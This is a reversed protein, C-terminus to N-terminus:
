TPSAVNSIAESGRQAGTARSSSVDETEIEGSACAWGRARLEDDIVDVVDDATTAGLVRDDAVSICLTKRCQACQAGTNLISNM